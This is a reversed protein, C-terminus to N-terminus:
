GTWRRYAMLHHGVFCAKGTGTLPGSVDQKKRSNEKTLKEPLPYLPASYYAIHTVLIFIVHLHGRSPFTGRKRQFHCAPQVSSQRNNSFIANGDKVLRAAARTLLSVCSFLSQLHNPISIVISIIQNTPIHLYPFPYHLFLRRHEGVTSATPSSSGFSFDPKPAHCQLESKQKCSIHTDHYM